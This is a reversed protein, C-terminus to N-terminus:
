QLSSRQLMLLPITIFSVDKGFFFLHILVSFCHQSLLQRLTLNDQSLCSDCLLLTAKM